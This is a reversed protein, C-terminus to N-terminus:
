NILRKFHHRTIIKSLEWITHINKTEIAKNLEKYFKAINLQNNEILETEQFLNDIEDM